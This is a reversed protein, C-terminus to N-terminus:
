IMAIKSENLFIIYFQCLIRGLFAFLVVKYETKCRSHIPIAFLIAKQCEPNNTHSHIRSFKYSFETSFLM